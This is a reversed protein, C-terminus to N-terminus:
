DKLSLLIKKWIEPYETLFHGKGEVFNQNYNPIEKVLKKIPGIPSLTDEIGHWLEVPTKIKSVEFGWHKTFLKAELVTGMVGNKFAEGMHTVLFEANAREEMIIRDAECLHKTNAMVSDVYRDPKKEILSKQQNFIFKMLWPFRKSLNFVTRNEAAMEKPPKGNEFQNVTSILGCKHISDPHKYALAASYVGGGSVGFVSYKTLRLANSLELIDDGFDLFTRNKKQDSIGFGPRDVTILRIGLSNCTEDDKKFWIRSGPLGHFAFVPFGNLDGYEHYGLSRGDSLTHKNTAQSM